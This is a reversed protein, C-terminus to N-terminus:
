EHHDDDYDPFYYYQDVSYLRQNFEELLDDSLLHARCLPCSRHDLDIWRDVCERHFLHRCNSLWRVEDKGEFECLCVACTEPPAESEMAVADAFRMVPLHDRIMLLASSPTSRTPDEVRGPCSHLLSLFVPRLLSFLTALRRLVVEKYAVPFGM